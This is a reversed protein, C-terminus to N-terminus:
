LNRGSPYRKNINDNVMQVLSELDDWTSGPWPALLNQRLYQLTQAGSENLSYMTVGNEESLDMLGLGRMGGFAIKDVFLEYPYRARTEPDLRNYIELMKSSDIPGNEAEILVEIHPRSGGRFFCESRWGVLYSRAAQEAKSEKPNPANPVINRLLNLQQEM